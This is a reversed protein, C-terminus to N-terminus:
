LVQGNKTPQKIVYDKMEYILKKTDIQTYDHIVATCGLELLERESKSTAVGITQCHSRVGALAGNISDEFVVCDQPEVSLAKMALQYPLPSPKSEPCTEGFIICDLHGNPGSSGSENISAADSALGFLELCMAINERSANSVAAVKIHHSILCTIFDILGNLPELERRSLERFLAEKHDFFKTAEQQTMHPVLLQHLQHNAKGSISNNYYEDSCDIGLPKLIDKFVQRHFHDTDAMTGDIDFLVAKLKPQQIHNSSPLAANNSDESM